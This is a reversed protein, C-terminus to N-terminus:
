FVKITTQSKTLAKLCIIGRFNKMFNKNLKLQNMKNSKRLIVKEKFILLTIIKNFMKVM